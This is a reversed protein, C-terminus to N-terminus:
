SMTWVPKSSFSCGEESFILSTDYNYKGSFFHSYKAVAARPDKAYEKQFEISEKSLEIFSKAGTMGKFFNAVDDNEKFYNEIKEKQPHDGAVIVNGQFDTKLEIAPISSVEEKFMWKNFEDQFVEKGIEVQTEVDPLKIVGDKSSGMFALAPIETGSDLTIYQPGGTKEYFKSWVSSNKVMEQHSEKFTKAVSETNKSEQEVANNALSESSSVPFEEKSTAKPNTRNSLNFYSTGHLAGFSVMAM